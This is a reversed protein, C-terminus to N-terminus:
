FLNSCDCVFWTWADMFRWIISGEIPYPFVSFQWWYLECAWPKLIIMVKTNQRNKSERSQGGCKAKKWILSLLNVHKIFLSHLNLHRFNYFDAHELHWISLPCTLIKPSSLFLVCSSHAFSLILIIYVQIFSFTFLSSHDSRDKYSWM